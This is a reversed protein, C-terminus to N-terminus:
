MTKKLKTTYNFYCACLVERFEKCNAIFMLLVCLLVNNLEAMLM